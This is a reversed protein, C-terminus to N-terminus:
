NLGTLVAAEWLAHALKPIDLAPIEDDFPTKGFSSRLKMGHEGGLFEPDDIRVIRIIKPM